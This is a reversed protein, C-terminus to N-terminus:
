VKPKANTKQKLKQSERSSQTDRRIPSRNKHSEVKLDSTNRGNVVQRKSARKSPTAGVKPRSNATCHPDQDELRVLSIGVRGSTRSAIHPKPQSLEQQKLISSSESVCRRSCSEGDFVSLPVLEEPVSALRRQLLRRLPVSRPYRAREALQEENPVSTTPTPQGFEPGGKETRTGGLGRAGSYITSSSTLPQGKPFVTLNHLSIPMSPLFESQPQPLVNTVPFAAKDCSSHKLNIRSDSGDLHIRELHGTLDMVPCSFTTPPNITSLGRWESTKSDNDDLASRKQDKCSKRTNGSIEGAYDIQSIFPSASADLSRPLQIQASQDHTM